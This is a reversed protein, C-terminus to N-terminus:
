TMFTKYSGYLTLMYLWAKQVKVAQEKVDKLFSLLATLALDARSTM